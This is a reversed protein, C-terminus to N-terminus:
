KYELSSRAHVQLIQFYIAVMLDRALLIFSRGFRQEFYSSALSDCHCAKVYVALRM